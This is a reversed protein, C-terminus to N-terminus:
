RELITFPANPPKEQWGIAYATISAVDSNQLQKSQYNMIDTVAYNTANKINYLDAAGFVHM